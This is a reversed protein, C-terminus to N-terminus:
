KRRKREDEIVRDAIEPVIDWAISEVVDSSLRELVRDAIADVEEETLGRRPEARGPVPFLERLGLLDEGDAGTPEADAAVASPVGPAPAPRSVVEGGSAATPAAAIGVAEPRSPEPGSVQERSDTESLTAAAAAEGVLSRIMESLQKPEFPKTITGNAGAEKAEAADFVEFAGVMLVVPVESLAPHERVHRCVEYGNRGPMHIDALIAVPRLTELERVAAEGNSVSVIAFPGGDFTREVLRQITSSDDALLITPKM